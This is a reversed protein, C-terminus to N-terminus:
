EKLCSNYLEKTEVFTSLGTDTDKIYIFCKLGLGSWPAIVVEYEKGHQLYLVTGEGLGPRCIGSKRTKSYVTLVVGKGSYVLVNEGDSYSSDRVHRMNAMCGKKDLEGLSYFVHHDRTWKPLKIKTLRDSQPVVYTNSSCGVILFAVLFGFLTKM